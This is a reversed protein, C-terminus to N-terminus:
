PMRRLGHTTTNIKAYKTEIIQSKLEAYVAFDTHKTFIITLGYMHSRRLFILANIGSAGVGAAQARAVDLKLLPFCAVLRRTKPFFCSWFDGVVVLV